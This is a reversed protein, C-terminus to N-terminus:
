VTMVLTLWASSKRLMLQNGLDENGVVTDSGDLLDSGDSFPRVLGKARVTLDFEGDHCSRFVQTDVGLVDSHGVSIDFHWSSAVVVVIGVDVENDIDRLASSDVSDPGAPSYRKEM